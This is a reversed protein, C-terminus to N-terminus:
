GMNWRMPSTASAGKLLLYMWGYVVLLSVLLIKGADRWGLRFAGRSFLAFPIFFLAASLVQLMFIQEFDLWNRTLSVYFSFDAGFFLNAFILDFHYHTKGVFAEGPLKRVSGIKVYRQRPMRGAFLAPALILCGYIGEM